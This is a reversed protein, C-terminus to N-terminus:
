APPGAPVAKLGNLVVHALADVFRGDEGPAPVRRYRKMGSDLAVQRLRVDLDYLTELNEVVFSLPVVLLSSVGSRALERVHDEAAPGVWAIPGASSQYALSSRGEVGLRVALTKMQAEVQGVYPDHLRLNRVPVSHAVFLVHDGGAPGDSGDTEMFRRIHEVMIGEFAAHAYFSQLASVGMGLRRASAVFASLFAGNTSISFQPNLPIAAVREVGSRRLDDLVADFSPPSYRYAARVPVGLRRELAEAIGGTKRALIGFGGILEYRRIVEKQRLRAIIPAALLSFARSFPFRMVDPDGLIGRIFPRVGKRGTPCGTSLLVVATANNM